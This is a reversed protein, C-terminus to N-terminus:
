GLSDGHSPLVGCTIPASPGANYTSKGGSNRRFSRPDTRDKPTRFGPSAAHQLVDEEKSMVCRPQVASALRREKQFLLYHHLHAPGVELEAGM